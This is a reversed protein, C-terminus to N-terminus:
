SPELAIGRVFLRVLLLCLCLGGVLFHALVATGRCPTIMYIDLGVGSEGDELSVLETQSRSAVFLKLSTGSDLTGVAKCIFPVM